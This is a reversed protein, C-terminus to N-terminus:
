PALRAKGLRNDQYWQQLEPNVSFLIGHCMLAITRTALQSDAKTRQDLMHWWDRLRGSMQFNQRSGYPIISRATEYSHGCKKVRWEYTDCANRCFDHYQSIHFDIIEFRNGDRDQYQGVPDHYFVQEPNIKGEAVALFRSGTYRGSQVLFKSEHHRTLQAIAEHPAGEIAMVVFAQDLVSYHGRDGQLQHKIVIEAANKPPAKTGAFDEAVCQHQGRWIAAIANPSTGDKDLKVRFGFDQAIAETRDDSFQIRELIQKNNM